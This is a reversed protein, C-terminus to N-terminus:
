RADAVDDLGAQPLPARGRQWLQLLVGAARPGGGLRAPARLGQPPDGELTQPHRGLPGGRVVVGGLRRRRVEHLPSQQGARRARGDGPAGAAKARAARRRARASLLERARGDREGARRIEPRPTDHPNHRFASASASLDSRPRPCWRSACARARKPLPFLIAFGARARSVRALARRPSVGGSPLRAHGSLARVGLQAHRAALAAMSSGTYDAM